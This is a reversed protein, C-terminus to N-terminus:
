GQKVCTTLQGNGLSRYQGDYTECLSNREVCRDFFPCRSYLKIPPLEPSQQRARDPLSNLLLRTYPHFPERLISKPGYEMLEGKYLVLVNRCIYDVVALDHSILIYTLQYQDKISQLLNLIQAQVSVDLSSAPEDAIVCSPKLVLARAIAIRQRQGGSFEHPHKLYADKTLGVQELISEAAEKRGQKDYIGHILLGEEIAKGVTIRPNFSSMPDQFIMQLRKRVPKIEKQSLHFLNRNEFFVRSEPTINRKPVLRLISRGITTKGSGSEGIIGLTEGKKVEFSVNNLAKVDGFHVTLNEIKLM